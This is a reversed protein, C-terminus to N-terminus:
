PLATEQPACMRVGEAAWGRATTAQYASLSTTLRHNSDEGREFGRNYARYVPLTGAPCPSPENADGLPITAPTTLFDYSELRWSKRGAEFNADLFACEDDTATYFHSNPGYIAGTAPNRAANGYFRCVRHSGGSRFALGTRSWGPGAAGADIAATEAPNATVFYHDLLTNRFEVVTAPAVVGSMDLRVVVSGTADAGGVFLNGDSALGLAAISRLGPVVFLGGPGFEPDFTDNNLLRRLVVRPSPLAYDIGAIVISDDALTVFTAASTYEPLDVSARVSGSATLRVAKASTAGDQYLVILKTDELVAVAAMRGTETAAFPLAAPLLVTGDAGFGTVVRGAADLKHLVLGRTTVSAAVLAGDPLVALSVNHAVRDSPWASFQRGGTGFRPDPSGDPLTQEIVLGALAAHNSDAATKQVVAHVLRGDPRTALGATANEIDPPTLPFSAVLRGDPAFRLSQASALECGLNGRGHLLLVISGDDNMAAEVPTLSCYALPNVVIHGATGWTSDARGDFGLRELVFQFGYPPLLWRGIASVAGSHWTLLGTLDILAIEPRNWEAIGDGRGFGNVLDGAPSVAVIGADLGVARCSSGSSSSTCLFRDALTGVFRAGGDSDAFGAMFFAAMYGKVDIRAGGAQGYTPDVNGAGDVRVVLATNSTGPFAVLAGGAALPVVVEPTWYEAPFDVRGATGFTGDLAGRDDIRLLQSPLSLTTVLWGGNAGRTVSMLAGNAPLSLDTSRVIGGTGFGADLAGAPTVRLLVDSGVAIGGGTTREIPAVPVVFGGTGDESIRGPQLSGLDFDGLPLMREGFQADLAGNSDLRIFRMALRYYFPDSTEVAVGSVVLLKGDPQLVFLNSGTITMANLRFAGGTGFSPDVRGAADLRSIFYENYGSGNYGGILLSDGQLAIQSPTAPPLLAVGADGFTPVLRGDASFRLVHMFSEERGQSTGAVVIDGGPLRVAAMAADESAALTAGVRALGGQGYRSDVVPGAQVAGLVLAM